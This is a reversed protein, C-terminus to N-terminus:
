PAKVMIVSLATSRSPYEAYLAKLWPLPNIPEVIYSGDTRADNVRRLM